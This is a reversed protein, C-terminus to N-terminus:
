SVEGEDRWKAIDRFYKPNSRPAFYIPYLALGLCFVFGTLGFAFRKYNFKHPDLQHEPM